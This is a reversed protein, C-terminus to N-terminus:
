PLRPHELISRTLGGNFRDGIAAQSQTPVGNYRTVKANRCRRPLNAASLKIGGAAQWSKPKEKLAFTNSKVIALAQM